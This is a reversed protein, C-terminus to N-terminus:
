NIVVNKLDNCFEDIIKGDLTVNISDKLITSSDLTIQINTNGHNLEKNM